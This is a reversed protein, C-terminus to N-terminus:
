EEEKPKNIKIIIEFPDSIIDKNEKAYIIAKYEQGPKPNNINMSITYPLSQNPEFEGPM